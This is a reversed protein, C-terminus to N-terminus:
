SGCYGIYGAFAARIEEATAETLNDSAFKPSDSRMLVVSMYGAPHYMIRGVPDRGLPSDIMEGDAQEVKWSLLRWAGFFQDRSSRMAPQHPEPSRQTTSMAISM